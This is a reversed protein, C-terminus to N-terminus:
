TSSMHRVQGPLDLCHKCSSITSSHLFCPMTTVAYEGRPEWSAGRRSFSTTLLSASLYLTEGEVM